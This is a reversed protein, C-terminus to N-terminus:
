FEKGDEGLVLVLLVLLPALTGRILVHKSGNLRTGFCIAADLGSADLGGMDLEVQVAM